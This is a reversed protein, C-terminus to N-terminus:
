RCCHVDPVVRQSPASHGGPHRRRRTGAGVVGMVCVGRSGRASRVPGNGVCAVLASRGRAGAVVRACAAGSADDATMRALRTASWVRPPVEAGPSLCETPSGGDAGLVARAISARRAAVEQGDAAPPPPPSLDVEVCDFPNADPVFGHYTAYVANSNDGYDEFLQTGAAAPRDARVEFTSRGVVHYKLFAAGSDAARSAQMACVCTRVRSACAISRGRLERAVGCEVDEYAAHVCVRVCVCVCVCVRVCVCVCVCACVCVCVCVCVRVCVCVCVCVRVCVYVCACVCVCM